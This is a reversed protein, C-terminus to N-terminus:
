NKWVSGMNQDIPLGDSQMSENQLVNYQRQLVEIM